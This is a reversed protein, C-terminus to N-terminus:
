IVIINYRQLGADVSQIYSNLNALLQTTSSTLATLDALINSQADDIYFRIEDCIQGVLLGIISRSVGSVFANLSTGRSWVTWTQNATLSYTM